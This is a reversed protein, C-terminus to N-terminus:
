YVQYGALEERIERIGMYAGGEEAMVQLYFSCDLCRSFKEAFNQEVNDEGPTNALAWCSRGGCTGHNIGTAAICTM